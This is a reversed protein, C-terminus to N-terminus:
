SPKPAEMKPAEMLCANKACGVDHVATALVFREHLYGSAGPATAAETAATGTGTADTCCGRGIVAPSRTSV